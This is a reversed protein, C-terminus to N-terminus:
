LFLCQADVVCVCFCMNVFSLPVGVGYEALLTRKGAAHLATSGDRPDVDHVLAPACAIVPPSLLATYYCPTHSPVHALTILAAFPHPLM